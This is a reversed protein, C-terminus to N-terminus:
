HSTAFRIACGFKTWFEHQLNRKFFRLGEDGTPSLPKGTMQRQKALLKEIDMLLMGSDAGTPASQGHRHRAEGSALVVNPKHKKAREFTAGSVGIKEAVKDATHGFAEGSATTEHTARRKSALAKEIDLLIM